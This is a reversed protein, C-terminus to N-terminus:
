MGPMWTAYVDSGIVLFTYLTHFGSTTATHDAPMHMTFSSASFTCTASTTGKVALTYSGGDKMNLLTFNGCSSNTYQLNGNAFNITSGTNNTATKMLFTGNVDVMARPATNGFGTYGTTDITVATIGGTMFSLSYFDLTGLTASAGFGNGGNEFFSDSVDIPQCLIKDSASNFYPTQNSLCSPFASAAWKSTLANWKLFGGTAPTADISQSQIKNITLSGTNSLTADGTLSAEAAADSTNGIWIKGSPLSSTM